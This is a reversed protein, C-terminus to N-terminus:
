KGCKTCINYVSHALFGPVKKTTAGCWFCTDRGDNNMPANNVSVNIIPFAVKDDILNLNYKEFFRQNRGKGFGGASFSHVGRSAVAVFDHDCTPNNPGLLGCIDVDFEVLIYGDSELGIITGDLDKFWIGVCNRDLYNSSVKVRNGIEM